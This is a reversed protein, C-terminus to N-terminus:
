HCTSFFVPICYSNLCLCCLFAFCSPHSLFFFVPCCNFINYHLVVHTYINKYMSTQRYSYKIISPTPFSCYFIFPSWSVTRKDENQTCLYKHIHRHISIEMSFSLCFWKIRYMCVSPLWLKNRPEVRSHLFCYM